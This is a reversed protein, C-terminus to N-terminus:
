CGGGDIRLVSKLLSGGFELIEYREDEYGHLVAILFTKGDVNLAVFPTMSVVEKGYCNTLTLGKHLLVRGGNQRELVWGQFLSLADCGQDQSKVPEAYARSASFFYLSRGPAPVPAWRGEVTLEKVRREGELVPHGSALRGGVSEGKAVKKEIAASEFTEFSPRLFSALNLAERSAQVVDAFPKVGKLVTTATGVTEHYSSRDASPEVDTSFGWVGQCHAQAKVPKRIRIPAGGVAPASPYWTRPLSGQFWSRPVDELVRLDKELQEDPKPWSNVWHGGLYQAVPVLAGDGKLAAVWIPEAREIAAHRASGNSGAASLILAILLGAVPKVPRSSVARDIRM